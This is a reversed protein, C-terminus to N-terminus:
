TMRHDGAYVHHIVAYTADVEGSEVKRRAERVLELARAYQTADAVHAIDEFTVAGTAADLRSYAVVYGTLDDLGHGCRGHERAPTPQPIATADVLIM